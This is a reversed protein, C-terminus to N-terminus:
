CKYKVIAILCLLLYNEVTCSLFKIYQIKKLLCLENRSLSKFAHCYGVPNGNYLPDCAQELIYLFKVNDKSENIIETVRSDLSKWEQTCCEANCRDTM